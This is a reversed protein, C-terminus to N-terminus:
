KEVTLSYPLLITDRGDATLLREGTAPDYLGVGLQAPGTYDPERFALTHSDTIFEGALWGTTPRRGDGPLADHQAALRGDPTLLHVFVTYSVPAGTVQAQWYLTLPFPEGAKVVAPPPDFGVLRGVDGLVVDLPIEPSPPTFQRVEASINVEGVPVSVDGLTVLINAPGAAAEPPILLRRHEVVVEGPQWRNTPYRGQSPAADIAALLNDGQWLELRPRLDPLPKAAQWALVAIVTDGPAADGRDLGVATLQLGDAMTGPQPLPSLGEKLRYPNAVAGEAQSLTLAEALTFQQGQPMGTQDQWELAMTEGDPMRQYVTGALRYTLPPTGPPLPLVHYTIVPEGPLWNTAPRGHGDVLLKDGRALPWGDTDAVQVAVGLSREAPEALEWRLAFTVATNAAAGQEVWIGTLQLPGFRAFVPTFEPPSVPRETQYERLILGDFHSVATLHGSQELVFPLIGQRDLEEGAPGLTYVRHLQGTWEAVASWLQEEQDFGPQTIPAAGEYEFSLAWGADPVIILDEPSVATELYRAVGRMDDKAFDPDVFYYWLGLLFTVTLASALLAALIQYLRNQRWAAALLYAALPMLGIAYMSIYRPHSYSRVSWVFLASSVPILWVAALGVATQRMGPSRIALLWLALLLVAIGVALWRVLPVALSGALGTLHFVWVQSLLFDLPVPETFFSGANAENAVATLNLLVATFWPLSAAAVGGQVLLWPRLSSWRRNRWYVFLAWLNIFVSVFLTLYHLHLGVWELMGLAAWHYWRPRSSPRVLWATLGMLGLYVSPLMAYVRIEQAYIVSLPSFALLLLGILAPRQWDRRLWVRLFAFLVALQLWSALVSLYRTSFINLGTLGAWGRLWAFYLPPHINQVRDAFIQLLSSRALNLSIGEDWWISQAPLMFIRLAFAAWLVLLLMPWRLKAIRGNPMSKAPPPSLPTQSM